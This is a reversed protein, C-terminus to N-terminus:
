NTKVSTNLYAVLEELDQGSKFNINYRDIYDEINPVTKRFTKVIKKRTAKIITKNDDMCIYYTFSNDMIVKRLGRSSASTGGTADYGVDYGNSSIQEIRKVVYKASVGLQIKDKTSHIEIIDLPSNLFIDRAIKYFSIQDNQWVLTDGNPKITLIKARVFDYNFLAEDSMKGNKYFIRGKQFQKYRYHKPANLSESLNTSSIARIGANVSVDQALISASLSTFIAIFAISKM